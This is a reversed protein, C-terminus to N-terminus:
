SIGYSTSAWINHADDEIIAHIVNNLLGCDKSYIIPEDHPTKYLYLGTACGVWTWNRSDIYM